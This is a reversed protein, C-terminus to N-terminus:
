TECEGGPIELNLDYTDQIQNLFRCLAPREELWEFTIDFWEAGKKERISLRAELDHCADFVDPGTCTFSECTPCGNPHLDCELDLDDEDEDDTEEAEEEEEEEVEEEEGPSEVEQLKIFLEHGRLDSAQQLHRNETEDCDIVVGQFLAHLGPIGCNFVIQGENM